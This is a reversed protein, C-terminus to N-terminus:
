KAVQDSERGDPGEEGLWDWAIEAWPGEPELELFARWIPEAREAEGALSLARATNFALVQDDPHRRHLDELSAAYDGIPRDQSLEDAVRVVARAMQFRSDDAHVRIAHEALSLAKFPHDDLMYLAILNLLASPHDPDVELAKVLREEGPRLHALYDDREYCESRTEGRYTTRDLVTEEDLEVPLRWRTILTGDCEGLVRAALQYHSLGLNSLVERSPFFLEVDEFAAIAAEYDEEGVAEVGRHFVSAKQAARRLREKANLDRQEPSPHREDQYALQGKATGVWEAFFSEDKGLVVAPDYGALLMGIVAMEDAQLELKKVEQASSGLDDRLARVVEDEGEFALSMAAADLFWQHRSQLHALEHALVLALRSDGRALSVGQYCLELGAWNLVVNGDPLAAAYPADTGRGIGEPGVVVLRNGAFDFHPRLKAFVGQARAVFPNRAPAEEWEEIWREASRWEDDLLIRPEAPELDNSSSECGAIGLTPLALLAVLLPWRRRTRGVSEQDM